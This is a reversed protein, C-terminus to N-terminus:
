GRAAYLMRKVTGGSGALAALSTILIVEVLTSVASITTVPEVQGAAPGLPIGLSRTLLFLGVIAANGIIGARLILKGYRDWLRGSPDPNPLWARALLVVGLVAQALAMVLFAVGYGWWEELHEPMVAIHILAATISLSAALNFLHRRIHTTMREVM